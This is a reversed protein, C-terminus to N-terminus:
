SRLGTRLVRGRRQGAGCEPCRGPFARFDYGCAPCLGQSKRLEVKRKRYQSMAARCLGLAFVVQAAVLMGTIWMNRRSMAIASRLFEAHEPNIPTMAEWDVVFGRLRYCIRACYVAAALIGVAFLVNAAM